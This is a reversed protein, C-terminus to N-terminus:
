SKEIAHNSTEWATYRRAPQSSLLPVKFSIALALSSPMGTNLVIFPKFVKLSLKTHSFEIRHSIFYCINDTPIIGTFVYQFSELDFEPDTAQMAEEVGESIEEQMSTMDILEPPYSISFLGESTYTIFDPPIEREIEVVPAQAEDSFGHCGAILIFSAITILLRKM